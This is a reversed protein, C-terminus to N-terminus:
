HSFVSIIYFFVLIKGESSVCCSTMGRRNLQTTQREAGIGQQLAAQRQRSIAAAEPSNNSGRYFHPPQQFQGRRQEAWNRARDTQRNHQWPESECESHTRKRGGGGGRETSQQRSGGACVVTCQFNNSNTSIGYIMFNTLRRPSHKETFL